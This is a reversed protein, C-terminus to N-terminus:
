LDISASKVFDYTVPAFGLARLEGERSKPVIVFALRFTRSKVGPIIENDEWWRAMFNAIRISGEACVSEADPDVIEMSGLSRHVKEIVSFHGIDFQSGDSRRFWGQWEVGVPLGLDDTVTILLELTSEFRGMLVCDPALKSVADALQDIRSGNTKITAAVGAELAIADQSYTQGCCQLLMSVCTPGCHGVQQLQRTIRM